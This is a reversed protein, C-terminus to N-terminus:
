YVKALSGTFNRIETEVILWAVANEKRKKFASKAIRM